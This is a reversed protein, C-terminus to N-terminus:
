DYNVLTPIRDLCQKVKDSIEPAPSNGYGVLQRLEYVGAYRHSLVIEGTYKLKSDKFLGFCGVEGRNHYQAYGGICNNLERGWQYFDGVTEPKVTEYGDVNIKGLIKRYEPSTKVPQKMETERRKLSERNQVVVLRDHMEEMTPKINDWRMHDHYRLFMRFTDRATWSAVCSLMFRENKKASWGLKSLVARMNLLVDPSVVFATDWNLLIPLREKPVFGRSTVALSYAYSRHHLLDQSSCNVTEVTSKILPKTIRTKGFAKALGEKLDSYRLLSRWETSTSGDPFTTSHDLMPYCALWALDKITKGETSVTRGTSRIARFLQDEIWGQGEWDKPLDLFSPITHGMGRNHGFLIQTYSKGTHEPLLFYNSNGYSWSGDMRRTSSTTHFRHDANQWIGYRYGAATQGSFVLRSKRNM